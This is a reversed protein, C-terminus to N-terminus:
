AIRRAPGNRFKWFVAHSAAIMTRPASAHEMARQVLLEPEDLEILLFCTRCARWSNPWQEGSGAPYNWAVDESSFCFDCYTRSMTCM